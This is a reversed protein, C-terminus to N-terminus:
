QQVTLTLPTEITVGSAPRSQLLFVYVSGPNQTKTGSGSCSTALGSALVLLVLALLHRRYRRLTGAGVLLIALPCGLLLLSSRGFSSTAPRSAATSSTSKVTVTITSAASSDLKVSSSPMSCDFGAPLGSCALTVTGKYGGVPSISMKYTASQGSTITASTSSGSAAEVTIATGTGTLNVVEPSSPLNDVITLTGTQDGTNPPDFFVGVSCSFGPQVSNGCASLPVFGSTAAVSAITFPADGNNQLTVVGPASSTGVYQSGFNLSSPAISLSPGIVYGIGTLPVSSQAV